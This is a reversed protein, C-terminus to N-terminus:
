SILSTTSDKMKEQLGQGGGAGGGRGRRSGRLESELHMKSYAIFFSIVPSFFLCCFIHWCISILIILKVMSEKLSLMQLKQKM